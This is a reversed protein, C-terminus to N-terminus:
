SVSDPLPTEKSCDQSRPGLGTGVWHKLVVSHLFMHFLVFIIFCMCFCHLFAHLFCAFVNHFLYLVLCRFVFIDCMFCSFFEFGQVVRFGSVPVERHGEELYLLGSWNPHPFPSWFSLVRPDRERDPKM